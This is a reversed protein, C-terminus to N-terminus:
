WEDDAPRPVPKNEFTKLDVGRTLEELEEELSRLGADRRAAEAGDGGGTRGGGGGARGRARGGAAAAQGDAAATSSGGAGGGNSGGGDGLRRLREMPDYEEV